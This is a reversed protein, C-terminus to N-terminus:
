MDLEFIYDENEINTTLGFRGKDILPGCGGGVRVGTSSSPSFGLRRPPALGSGAFGRLQETVIPSYARSWSATRSSRDTEGATALTSNEDQSSNKHKHLTQLTSLQQQQQQQQRQRERKSSPAIADAAAGTTSSPAPSDADVDCGSSSSSSLDSAGEKAEWRQQLAIQALRKRRASDIREYMNWTAYDYMRALDSEEAANGWRPASHYGDGRDGEGGDRSPPIPIERTRDYHTEKSYSRAIRMTTSAAACLDCGRCRRIAPDSPAALPLLTTATTTTTTTKTATKQRESWPAAATWATTLPPISM